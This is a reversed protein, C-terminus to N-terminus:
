HKVLKKIIKESSSEVSIFYIGSAENNLDITQTFKGNVPIDNIEFVVANVTNFVKISFLEAKDTNMFIQFQGSTPNPSIKLGLKKAPDDFGVTNDVMVVIGESWDSEGCDNINRTSLTADGLFGPDWNVECTTTNLVTVEGANAPELNWESSTANPGPVMTYESTQTYVLDIYDPGEPKAPTVPLPVMTVETSGEMVNDCGAEPDFAFVTYEGEATQPSFTIAEGTGLATIGTTLGDLFLEYTFDPQSGDLGIVAGATGECYEGDGDVNFVEPNLIMTVVVENEMVNSCLTELSTGIITCIGTDSVMFSLPGGTGAQINETPKNDAYVEYDVGEDSTELMIAVGEDGECFTGGGSINYAEPSDNVLIALPESNESEGCGNVAKCSISAEGVFANIYNVTITQGSGMIFGASTPDITWEYDFAGTSGTTTYEQNEPNKCLMNEGTPTGPIGPASEDVHIYATKIETDNFADNSVTLIVDYEGATEYVVTPNPLNSHEPTGGQFTWHWTSLIGVSMDTFHVENGACITTQDASFEAEVDPSILELLPSMTGQYVEKTTNNQISVIIECNSAVWSNDITFDLNFTQSNGTLDLDTGYQDPVMLRNVFNVETMCGQWNQAIHSETIFVFVSVNDTSAASVKTIDVMIEYNNGTHSGYVNLEFPSDIAKRQNYRNLYTGYKGSPSPCPIGGVDELVGDFNVQPTGGV